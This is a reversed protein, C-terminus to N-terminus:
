RGRGRGPPCASRRVGSDRHQGVPLALGAVDVAAMAVDEHAGGRGVGVAPERQIDRRDGRTAQFVQAQDGGRGPPGQRRDVELGVGFPLLRRDGQRGLLGDLAPQDVDLALGGRPDDDADGLQVELM